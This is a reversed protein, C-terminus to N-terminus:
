SACVAFTTIGIDAAGAQTNRLVAAWGDYVTISHYPMSAVVAPWTAGNPINLWYGGGSVYTGAPCIVTGGGYAGAALTTQSTVVTTKTFGIQDTQRADIRIPQDIPARDGAGAGTTSSGISRPATSQPNDSCAALVLATSVLLLTRM